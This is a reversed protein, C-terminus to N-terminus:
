RVIRPPGAIKYALVRSGYERRLAAEVRRANRALTYVYVMNGGAVTFWARVGREERMRRVLNCAAFMPDKIVRVGVWELIYHFNMADEEAIAMVRELDGRRLAARVRKVFSPRSCVREPFHPHRVAREHIEDASHRAGLETFPVAFVRWAWLKEPSALQVAICRGGRVETLSLGGYLSRYVSESGLRAIEALEEKSMKLELFDALATALAAAGSDSSGTVIDHNVSSIRLGGKYRARKCLLRAMALMDAGRKGSVPVGNVTFSIGKPAREVTTETRVREGFDTVALGMTSYFPIRRAPDKLGCLLLVPITPYAIATSRERM